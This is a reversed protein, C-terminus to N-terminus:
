AANKLPRQGNIDSEPIHLGPDGSPVSNIAFYPPRNSDGSLWKMLHRVVNASVGARALVVVQDALSTLLNASLNDELPGADVIIIDSTSRLRDIVSRIRFPSLHEDGVANDRGASLVSIEGSRNVHLSPDLEGASVADRLGPADGLALNKTLTPKNLDADVLVTQLGSISFSAALERAFTTAGSGRCASCVTLVRCLRAPSFAGDALQLRNRIRHVSHRYNRDVQEFRPLAGLMYSEGVAHTMDDSYRLRPRVLSGLLALGLAALMGFGAGAVAIKKRKDEMPKNPTAGTSIVEVSGPLTTSSEVRVEELTRRTEDLISRVEGYEENLFTLQILKYNLAKAEEAVEIKRSQLKKRLALLGALSDEEKQESGGTLAGTKGLTVIQQRRSEIASEIVEIEKELELVKPHDPNYRLKFAALNAARKARDYTMDAMAKDLVTVRKIEDDGTDFATAADKAEVQAITTELESVRQDVDELQTVKNLHAKAVSLTGHEEGVALISENIGKLKRILEMEREVLQKERISQAQTSSEAHLNTYALLLTNVTASAQVPSNAIASVTILGKDKRVSVMRGLDSIDMDMDMDLDQSNNSTGILNNLTRELVPRSKLYTVEASVFSDFLRLRPDNPDAYMIKPVRAAVRILGQSQYKPSVAMFGAIGFLVSLLIAFAAITIMRGRFARTVLTIPNVSTPSPEELFDRVQHLRPDGLKILEAHENQPDSEAQNGPNMADSM